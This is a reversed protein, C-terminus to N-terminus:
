EGHDFVSTKHEYTYDRVEASIPIVNEAFGLDEVTSPEVMNIGNRRNLMTELVDLKLGLSPTSKSTAMAGSIKSTHSSTQHINSHSQHTKIKSESAAHSQVWRKQRIDNEVAKTSPLKILGELLEMRDSIVKSKSKTLQRKFKRNAYRENESHDIQAASRGGFGSGHNTEVAAMTATSVNSMAAIIMASSSRRQQAPISGLKKIAPLQAVSDGDSDSDSDSSDTSAYGTAATGIRMSSSTRSRGEADGTAPRSEGESDSHHTLVTSLQKQLVSSRSKKPSSSRSTVPKHKLPKAREKLMDAIQKEQTCIGDHLALIAARDATTKRLADMRDIIKLESERIAAVAADQIEHNRQKVLAGKVQFISVKPQSAIGPKVEFPALAEKGVAVGLLDEPVSPLPDEVVPTQPRVEMVSDTFGSFSVQKHMMLMHSQRSGPPEGHNHDKDKDKDKHVPSNNNATGPHSTTRQAVLAHAKDVPVVHPHVEHLLYMANNLSGVYTQDNGQLSATACLTIEDYLRKRDVEENLVSIAKHDTLKKDDPELISVEEEDMLGHRGFNTLGVHGFATALQAKVAEGKLKTAALNINKPINLVSEEVNAETMRDRDFHSLVEESIEIWNYMPLICMRLHDPEIEFHNVLSQLPKINKASYFKAYRYAEIASSSCQHVQGVVSIEKLLMPQGILESKDPFVIEEDNEAVDTGDDPDSDVDEASALSGFMGGGNRAKLNKVSTRRMMGSPAKSLMGPRGGGPGANASNPKGSASSDKSVNGVAATASDPKKNYNREVVPASSNSVRPVNRPKTIDMLHNVSIASYRQGRLKCVAPFVFNLLDVSPSFSCYQM